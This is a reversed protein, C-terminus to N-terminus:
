FWSCVRLDSLSLESLGASFYKSSNVGASLYIQQHTHTCRREFVPEKRRRLERNISGEEAGWGGSQTQWLMQDWSTFVSFEQGLRESAASITLHDIHNHSAPHFQELIDGVLLNGQVKDKEYKNKSLYLYLLM